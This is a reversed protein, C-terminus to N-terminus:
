NVAADSSHTGDLAAARALEQRAKDQLGQKRYVQGLQFHLGADNPETNVAQEFEQQARPFNMQRAYLKGLAAHVKGNGPSLTEARQLVPLAENLQNRDTLLNGLNLLPQESPHPDAAQGAIAQHYAKVAKDPENLGEFTLGLNNEAKVSHPMLVLARQFGTVAEAFRNETYKIRGMAYAIEGNNPDERAARTIWTNAETYAHLLVYDLAIYHFDQAGPRRGAAARTYMALSEKPRDEHFLTLALAFMVDSAEAYQTLYQRLEAEAIKWQDNEMSARANALSASGEEGAGQLPEACACLSGLTLLVLSYLLTKALASM